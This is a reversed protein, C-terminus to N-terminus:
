SKKLKHDQLNKKINKYVPRLFIGYIKSLELSEQKSCM